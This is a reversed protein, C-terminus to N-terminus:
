HETEVKSDRLVRGKGCLFRTVCNEFETSGDIRFIWTEFKRVRVLFKTSYNFKECVLIENVYRSLLRLKIM